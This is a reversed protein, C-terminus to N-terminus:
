RGFIGALSRGLIRDLLLGIFYETCEPIHITNLIFFLKTHQEEIPGISCNADVPMGNAPYSSRYHIYFLYQTNGEFAIGGRENKAM